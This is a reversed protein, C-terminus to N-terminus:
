HREVSSPASNVTLAAKPAEEVKDAKDGRCATSTKGSRANLEVGVEAITDLVPQFRMGFETLEYEVTPPSTPMVTRTVIGRSELERLRTTLVKASIRGLDRKLDGFRRPEARLYWLIKPTWAGALFSLVEELPCGQPPPAVKSKKPKIM